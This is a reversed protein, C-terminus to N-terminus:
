LNDAFNMTVVLDYEGEREFLLGTPVFVDNDLQYNINTTTNDFDLTFLRVGGSQRNYVSWRFCDRATTRDSDYIAMTVSFTVIPLGAAVPDFNLPHWVNLTGESNTLPSFGVFAQQRGFPLQPTSNIFVNTVLGNGNVDTGTWGGQGILTFQTDFGDAPEFGTFYLTTSQATAAPQDLDNAFLFLLCVAASRSGLLFRRSEM